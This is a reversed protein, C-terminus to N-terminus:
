LYREDNERYRSFTRKKECAGDCFVLTPEFRQPFEALKLLRDVFITQRQHDVRCILVGVVTQSDRQLLRALRTICNSMEPLSNFDLLVVDFCKVIQDPKPVGPLYLRRWTPLDRSLHPYFFEVLFHALRLDQGFPHLKIDSLVQSTHTM